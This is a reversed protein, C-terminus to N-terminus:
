CVPTTEIFENRWYDLLEDVIQPMSITPLWGTDQRLRTNDGLLIPEDLPRLRAPDIEVTAAVRGRELVMDVIDGIRTTSGSCLNYVTGPQGRDLLLWLARAVDRVHTFDRRADMNGVHIV